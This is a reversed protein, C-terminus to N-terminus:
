NQMFDVVNAPAEPTDVVPDAACDRSEEWKPDYDDEVPAQVELSARYANIANGVEEVRALIEDKSTYVAPTSEGRAIGANAWFMAEQIRQEATDREKGPPVFAAVVQALQKACDRLTEYRQTQGVMPAHYTYDGEAVSNNYIELYGKEEVSLKKLLDVVGPLSAEIAEAIQQSKPDSSVLGEIIGLMAPASFGVVICTFKGYELAVSKDDDPMHRVIISTEEDTYLFRLASLARILVNSFTEQHPNGNSDVLSGDIFGPIIYTPKMPKPEILNPRCKMEFPKM